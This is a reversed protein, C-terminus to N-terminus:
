NRLSAMNQGEEFAEDLSSFESSRLCRKYGEASAGFIVKGPSYEQHKLTSYVEKNIIHTKPLLTRKKVNFESMGFYNKIKQRENRWMDHDVFAAGM